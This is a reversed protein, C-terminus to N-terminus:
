NLIFFHHRISLCEALNISEIGTKFKLMLAHCKVSQNTERMFQESDLYIIILKQAGMVMINKSGYLYKLVYGRM